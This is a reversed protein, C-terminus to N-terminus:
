PTNGPGPFSLRVTTGAGVASEIEASGGHLEVISKVLALGLGTGTSTRSPDARYFRDFVRPLHQGDIGAGTDKVWVDTRGNARSCTIEIEGGKPTFRLANDVVNSLVRTFLLPDAFIEAEGRCVITVGRDEAVTQYYSAIKEAAARAGFQTRDIQGDTAEARALFLLNDVIASLRECEAVTSEIAARYEDPSRTRSLTVQAEGLINGVPTRLEHALDASFQSLRRFSEDLRALMNDFAAAVPQLELPWRSPEIREDLRTPGVRELLQTMEALPRLGRRTATTAIIAAAVIGASLVAAFLLQFQRRFHEDETRDQAVQITFSQNQISATTASLSFLQDGQQYDRIAAGLSKSTPPSPFLSPPLLRGMGRSEAVVAGAPSQIRIWSVPREGIPLEQIQAALADLNGARELQEAVASVKDLLVVRDETAAHRVVMWYFVGLASSLLLTAALIFFLVLQTAIARPRTGKSFM